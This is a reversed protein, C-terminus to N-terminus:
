NWFQPQYKIEKAISHHLTFEAACGYDNAGPYKQVQKFRVSNRDFGQIIPKFQSNQQSRDHYIKGILQYLIAQCEQILQDIETFDNVSKANKIVILMIETHLHPNDSKLDVIKQEPFGYLLCPTRTEVNNRLSVVEEEFDIRTVKRNQTTHAIAKNKTAIDIFYENYDM